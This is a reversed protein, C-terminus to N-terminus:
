HTDATGENLLWPRIRCRRAGTKHMPDAAAYADVAQRSSARYFFMGEGTSQQEDDSGVPGAAFMVQERELKSRYALHADLNKM